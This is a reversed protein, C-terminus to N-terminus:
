SSFLKAITQKMDYLNLEKMKMIHTHDRKPVSRSDIPNEMITYWKEKYSRTIDFYNIEKGTKSFIDKTKWWLILHDNTFLYPEECKRIDFWPTEKILTDAEFPNYNPNDLKKLRWFIRFLWELIM